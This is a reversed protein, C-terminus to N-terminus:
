KVILEDSVGGVIGIAPRHIEKAPTDMPLELDIILAGRKRIAAEVTAPNPSEPMIQQPPSDCGNKIEVVLQV